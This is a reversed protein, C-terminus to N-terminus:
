PKYNPVFIPSQGNTVKVQIALRNVPIAKRNVPIAITGSKSRYASASM